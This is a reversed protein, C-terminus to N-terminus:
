APPIRLVQGPYIKDPHTLMPRNAEFIKAYQDPTGYFQKSVTSLNDGKAVTYWQSVPEAANVTMQDNVRSVTAVNGCCLVVKERTAQDAAMGSVTVTETGADFDIKLDDVKLGMSNIYRVIADGATRNLEAMDQPKATPAAPAASPAPAAAPAAAPAPATQAKAGFLKEGADKIFNFMGM